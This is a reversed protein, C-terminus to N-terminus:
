WRVSASWLDMSVYTYSFSVVVGGNDEEQWTRNGDADYAYTKRSEVIGDADDDKEHLTRNGNTDYVHTERFDAVGDADDDREFLTQNGNVDFARIERYEVSGDANTDMELLTQNGNADYEYTWISNVMSDHEARILNGDADYENTITSDVVGDANQDTEIITPNGNADYTNFVRFDVTGDGNEDVERLTLNGNTDYTSFEVNNATGDGDEDLEHLTRNGNTDYENRKRYNVTGDDDDDREFLTLLGNANYEWTARYEMTGDAGWDYEQMTLNGNTNYSYYYYGDAIGDLDTNEEVLARYGRADYSYIKYDDVTGDSGVDRDRQSYIAVSPTLDLGTYLNDLAHMANGIGHEGDWLGAARGLATLKRFQFDRRFKEYPQQFDMVTEQALEHLTAPIQIGNAVNSDEDMTQLFLAINIVQDLPTAPKLSYMFNAARRVDIASEPPTMGVLDFPSLYEQGTAEGILIDGVFFRVTEGKLYSFEGVFDTEGSQSDTEFILGSVPGPLFFGSQLTDTDGGGGGGGCSVLFGFSTILCLIQWFIKKTTRM